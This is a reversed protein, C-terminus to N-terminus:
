RQSTVNPEELSVGRPLEDWLMNARAIDGRSQLSLFSVSLDSGIQAVFKVDTTDHATTAYGRRVLYTGGM